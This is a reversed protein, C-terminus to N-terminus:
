TLEGIVRVVQVRLDGFFMVRLLCGSRGGSELVAEETVPASREEYKEQSRM